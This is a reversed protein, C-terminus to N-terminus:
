RLLFVGALLCGEPEANLAAVVAKNCQLRELGSTRVVRFEALFKCEIERLVGIGGCLVFQKVHGLEVGLGPDASLGEEPERLFCSFPGGTCEVIGNLVIGFGFHFLFGHKGQALQRLIFANRLENAHCACVRIRRNAFLCEEPETLRLIWTGQCVEFLYESFLSEADEPGQDM